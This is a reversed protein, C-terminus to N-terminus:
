ADGKLFSSGRRFKISIDWHDEAVPRKVIRIQIAEEALKRKVANARAVGKTSVAVVNEDPNTEKRFGAGLSYPLGVPAINDSKVTSPTAGFGPLADGGSGPITGDRAEVSQISPANLFLRDPFRGERMTRDPPLPLPSRQMWIFAPRNRGTEDKQM